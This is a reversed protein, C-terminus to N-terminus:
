KKTIIKINNGERELEFGKSLETELADYIATNVDLVVGIIVDDYIDNKTGNDDFCVYVPENDYSQKESIIDTRYDWINGDDTIVSGDTYYRGTTMYQKSTTESSDVQENRNSACGTLITSCLALALIAKKM